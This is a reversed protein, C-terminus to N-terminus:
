TNTKEENKFISERYGFQCEKNSFEKVTSTSIDFARLSVFTEKIEVGYAGINQMPATGANGPILSLNEIGGWGNNVCTTVMQHWNEGAGIKLEIFNDNEKTIEWGKINNQIVLGDYDKTFLINSGGGLILRKETKFIEKKSLAILDEM